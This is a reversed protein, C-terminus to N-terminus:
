GNRNLRKPRIVTPMISLRLIKEHEKLLRKQAEPHCKSLGNPNDRCENPFKIQYDQNTRSLHISRYLQKELARACAKKWNFGKTVGGELRTPINSARIDHNKMRELRYIIM